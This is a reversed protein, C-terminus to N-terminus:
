QSKSSTEFGWFPSVALSVCSPFPVPFPTFVFFVGYKNPNKTGSFPSSGKRRNLGDASKLDATDAM